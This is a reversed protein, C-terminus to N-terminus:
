PEIRYYKQPSNTASPDLLQMEGSQNTVYGMSQWSTLNTSWFIQYVGNAEGSLSFRFGASGVGEGQQRNVHFAPAGTFNATIVDSQNLTFTLPNQTGSADGTWNVFSEGDDPVATLTISQSTSFVNGQPNVNVHGFGAVEVTLASQGGSLTGFISSVTPTANTVTFNLPNVNGSAANGWAGFYNGSQPVGTLRVTQGYAYLGGPPQLMVQGNGVVTTSLTTGFVAYITKNHDMLVQLNPDTGSADGLWHLFQWGPAPNAVVSVTNTAFYSGSPSNTVVGGEAVYISQIEAISLARGYIATEDMLGGFHEAIHGSIVTHIGGLIMKFHSARTEPTFTGLNTQAAIHGNLYLTAIGSTKDYTLATYNFSGTTFQGAPSSILHFNGGTDQLNGLVCGSGNGGWSVPMNVELLVGEYHDLSFGPDYWEVLSAPKSTSTPNFWTTITLGNSAGVDLTPTLPVSVDADTGNFSFAQGIRGTAYAVSGEAIGNNTGASDLTNGEGRWWSVADSPPPNSAQTLDVWGGGSSSATLTHSVLVTVDVADAEESQTFDSSYGIARVTASQTLTFPGSYPTSAFSPASGNLTYFASGSPYASRVTLLPPTAFIYTGSTLLQGGAYIEVSKVRLLAPPASTVSGVSNSVVVTYPGAQSTTVSNFNLVANTANPFNTGNLQWAYQFPPTGGAAVDLSFSDGVFVTLPQPPTVVFPGASPPDSAIRAITNNTFQVFRNGSSDALAMIAAVGYNTTWIQIGDSNYKSFIGNTGALYLSGANDATLIWQEVSGIAQTWVLSGGILSKKLVPMSIQNLGALFIENALTTVPKGNLSLAAHYALPSPGTSVNLTGNTSYFGGIVDGEASRYYLFGGNTGTIPSVKISGSDFQLGGLGASQWLIAGSSSVRVMRSYGSSQTPCVVGVTASGDGNLCFDSLYNNGPQLGFSIAWLLTGNSAYKALYCTSYGAVWRAPNYNVNNIWGGVLTIGGFDNTGDFTGGFYFNGAVDRQAVSSAISPVPCITNTQLPVGNGNLKIVVGNANAYLNTQDDVAFVNAGVNTTWLLGPAQAQATHALCLAVGVMALVQVARFCLQPPISSLFQAYSDKFYTKLKTM